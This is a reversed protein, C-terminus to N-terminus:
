VAVELGAQFALAPNDFAKSPLYLIGAENKPYGEKIKYDFVDASLILKQDEAFNQMVGFAAKRAEQYSCDAPVACRLIYRNNGPAKEAETGSFVPPSLSEILLNYTKSCCMTDRSRTDIVRKAEFSAYGDIGHTLCVFHGDVSTVSVVATQFLINTNQFYPYLNREGGYLGSDLLKKQLQVAADKCVPAEYNKGFNLAGFFENGARTSCELILCSKQCTQAIGAAAFTAGLVIVEFM